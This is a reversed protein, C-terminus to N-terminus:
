DKYKTTETNTTSVLRYTTGRWHVSNTLASKLYYLFSILEVLPLLFVSFNQRDKRVIRLAIYVLFVRIPILLWLFLSFFLFQPGQALVMITFSLAGVYSLFTLFYLAGRLLWKSYDYVRMAVFAKKLANLYEGFSCDVHVPALCQPVFFLRLGLKRISRSMTSDDLYAGIWSKDVEARYFTEKLTAMSGGWLSRLNNSADAAFVAGMNYTLSLLRNSLNKRKAIHWPYVSTAGIRPDSLPLILNRLWDKSPQADSDAFAIARANGTLTLGKLLSNVKLSRNRAIGATVVIGRNSKGVIKRLIEFAPDRETNTVFIVSYDPYDQQLFSTINREFDVDIGRCPIILAVKPNQEEFRKDKISVLSMYSCVVYKCYILIPLVLVVTALIYLYDLM